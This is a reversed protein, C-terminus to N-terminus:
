ICSKIYWFSKLKLHLYSVSIYSTAICLRKIRPLLANKMAPYDILGAFTPLVSLCLEQIQQADSELARYLMPLVDSKIEEAPTLKLLLEMKQM